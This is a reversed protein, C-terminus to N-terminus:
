VGHRTSNPARNEGMVGLPILGIDMKQLPAIQVRGVFPMNTALVTTFLINASWPLRAMTLFTEVVASMDMRPEAKISGDAQAVGKAMRETMDSAVNGIEIQGVAISFARGDISAARTRGSIAGKRIGM